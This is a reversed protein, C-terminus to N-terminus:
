KVKAYAFTLPLLAHLEQLATPWDVAMLDQAERLVSQAAMPSLKEVACVLRHLAHEVEDKEL